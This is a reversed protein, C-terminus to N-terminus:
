CNEQNTPPFPSLYRPDMFASGAASTQATPSQGPTWRGATIGGWTRTLSNNKTINIPCLACVSFFSDKNLQKVGYVTQSVTLSHNRTFYFINCSHNHIHQCHTYTAACNAAQRNISSDDGHKALKSASPACAISAHPWRAM